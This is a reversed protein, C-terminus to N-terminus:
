LDVQNVNKTYHNYHFFNNHSAWTTSDYLAVYRQHKGGVNCMQAVQQEFLL